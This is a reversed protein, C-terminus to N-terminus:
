CKAMLRKRYIYRQGWNWIFNQLKPLGIQYNHTNGAVPIAGAVFDRAYSWQIISVINEVLNNHKRAFFKETGNGYAQTNLKDDVRNQRNEGSRHVGTKGVQRPEALMIKGHSPTDLCTM